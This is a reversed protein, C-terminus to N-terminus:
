CLGVAEPCKLSEDSVASGKTQKTNKGLSGDKNICPESKHRAHRSRRGEGNVPLDPQAIFEALLCESFVGLALNAVRLDTPVARNFGCFRISRREFEVQGQRSAIGAQLVDHLEEEDSQSDDETEQNQNSGNARRKGPLRRARIVCEVERKPRGRCQGVM